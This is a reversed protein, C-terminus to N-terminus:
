LKIPMQKKLKPYNQEIIRNFFIKTCQGIGKEKKQEKKKKLKNVEYHGM